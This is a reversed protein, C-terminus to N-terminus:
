ETAEMEVPEGDPGVTADAVRQDGFSEAELEEAGDGDGEGEGGPTDYLLCSETEDDSIGSGPEVFWCWDTVEDSQGDDALESPLETPEDSPPEPTPDVIPSPEPTPEPTLEIAESIEPSEVDIWETAEVDEREPEPGAPDLRPLATPTVPKIARVVPTTQAVSEVSEVPATAITESEATSANEAAAITVPLAISAVATTAVISSAAVNTTVVQGVSHLVGRVGTKAAEAVAVGSANSGGAATAGITGAAVAGVGGTFVLLVSLLRNVDRAEAFANSCRACIALHLEIRGTDRQSATGRVYTGVRERVWSCESGPEVTRLHAQIYKERLGEKARVLLQSVAGPRLRLELGVDAPSREGIECEILVRRWRDPLDALAKLILARDDRRHQEYETDVWDVKSEIEDTADERDRRGWTSIVNRITTALYPRFSSTPGGGKRMAEFVLVFAQQAVDEPDFSRNDRRAIAIADSYYKSWLRSLAVADGAKARTILDADDDNTPWAARLGYLTRRSKTTPTLTM